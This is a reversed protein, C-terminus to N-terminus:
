VSGKMVRCIREFVEERSGMGKIERLIGQAQYYDKLPATQQAYVELRKKITEERDDERQILRGGCRDCIGERQPPHFILHYTEGCQACTRRGSLRRVLENEEVEISIVGDLAVQMEKLVRGLADAQVVTRPFGDLIYGHQCDPKQLREQVIKVIVEDPVLQGAEMYKQAEQGVPTQERVAKRLIDGTSIQPIHFKERILEAQTGKGAGPPGLLIFRGTM